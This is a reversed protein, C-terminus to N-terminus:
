GKKSIGGMCLKLRLCSEAYDRLPIMIINHLNIDSWVVHPVRPVVQCGAHLTKANPNQSLTTISLHTELVVIKAECDCVSAWRM